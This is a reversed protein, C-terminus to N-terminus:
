KVKKVEESDSPFDEHISLELSTTKAEEAKKL